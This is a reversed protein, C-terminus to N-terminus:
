KIFYQEFNVKNKIINYCIKRINVFMNKTYGERHYKM